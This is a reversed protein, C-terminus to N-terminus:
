AKKRSKVSATPRSRAAAGHPAVSKPLHAVKRLAVNIRTQWGPGTARFHAVVDADLRLNVAKKPNTSRPRGVKSAKDWAKRFEAMSVRRGGIHPVARAFDQESWEPNEDYDKATNVYADAKALDSRIPRRRATM